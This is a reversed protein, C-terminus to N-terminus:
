EVVKGRPRALVSLVRRGGSGLLRAPAAGPCLITLILACCCSGPEPTAELVAAEEVAPVEAAVLRRESRSPDMDGITTVVLALPEM